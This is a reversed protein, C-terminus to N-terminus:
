PGLTADALPKSSPSRSESTEAGRFGVGVMLASAIAIGSGSDSNLQDLLRGITGTLPQNNRGDVPSTPV